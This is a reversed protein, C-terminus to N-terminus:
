KPMQGLTLVSMASTSLKKLRNSNCADKNNGVESWFLSTKSYNEVTFFGSIFLCFYINKM